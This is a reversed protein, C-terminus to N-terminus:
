LKLNSIVVLDDDKHKCSKLLRITAPLLPLYDTPLVWTMFIITFLFVICSVTLNFLLQAFVLIINLILCNMCYSKSKCSFDSVRWPYWDQSFFCKVQFKFAYIIIKFSQNWKICFYYLTSLIMNQIFGASFLLIFWCQLRLDVPLPVYDVVNFVFMSPVKQCTNLSKSPSMHVLKKLKGFHCHWNQFQPCAHWCIHLFFDLAVIFAIECHTRTTWLPM